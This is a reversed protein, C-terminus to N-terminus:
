GADLKLVKELSSRRNAGTSRCLPAKGAHQRYGGCGYPTRKFQNDRAQLLQLRRLRVPLLGPHRDLHRHWAAIWAAWVKHLASIRAGDFQAMRRDRADSWSEGSRPRFCLFVGRGNAGAAICAALGSVEYLAMETGSIYLCAARGSPVAQRKEHARAAQHRFNFEELHSGVIAELNCAHGVTAMRPLSIDL